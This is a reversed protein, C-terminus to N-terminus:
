PQGGVKLGISTATRERRCRPLRITPGCHPQRAPNPQPEPPLSLFTQVSMPDVAAARDAERAPVSPLSLRHPISRASAESDRHGTPGPYKRSRVHLPAREGSPARAARTMALAGEATARQPRTLFPIPDLESWREGTIAALITPSEGTVAAPAASSDPAGATRAPEAASDKQAVAEEAKKSTKAEARYSERTRRVAAMAAETMAADIAKDTAYQALPDLEAKFTPSWEERELDIDFAASMDDIDVLPKRTRGAADCAPCRLCPTAETCGIRTILARGPGTKAIQWRDTHIRGHHFRCLLILNESDTPGGDLWHRIHHAETWSVPRGCRLWACGGPQEAELKRRLGPKPLREERGLEVVEGTEYDFVMPVVGAECALHRARTIGVPRGELRPTREPRETLDIEGKLVQVDAILSLTATHGHRTPADKRAGAASVLQHFAEAARNAQSPLVGDADADEKRPPKVATKLYNDLLRGTDATLVGDLSWMGDGRETVELHALAAQSAEDLMAAADFLATAILDIAERLEAHSAHVCYERILEEPTACFVAPDYPSPKPGEPYPVRAHVRLGKRDLALMAFAVADIRAAGTRAAEALDRFKPALRAIRAIQSATTYTFDFGERLWELVGSFGDLERHMGASTYALVTRLAAADRRRNQAAIADLEARMSQAESSRDLRGSLVPAPTTTDPNM